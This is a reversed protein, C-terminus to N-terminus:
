NMYIGYNVPFLKSEAKRVVCFFSKQFVPSPIWVKLMSAASVGNMKPAHESKEHRDSAAVKSISSVSLDPMSLKNKRVDQYFTILLLDGFNCHRM